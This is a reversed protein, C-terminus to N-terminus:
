NVFSMTQDMVVSTMGLGVVHIGSFVVHIGTLLISSLMISRKTHTIQNMKLGIHSDSVNVKITPTEGFVRKFSIRYESGHEQVVSM